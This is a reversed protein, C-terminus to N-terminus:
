TKMNPGSSKMWIVPLSIEELLLSFGEPTGSGVKGVSEMGKEEEDEDM